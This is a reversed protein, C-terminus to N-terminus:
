LNARQDLRDIMADIEEGTLDGIEEALRNALITARPSLGGTDITVKPKWRRSLAMLDDAEDWIIRYHACIARVLGPTPRGRKGHELASLYAASLGLATALQALTEGHAERLSRLRAGFPTM